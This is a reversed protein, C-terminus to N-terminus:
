WLNDLAASERDAIMEAVWYAPHPVRGDRVAWWAMTWADANDLPPGWGM